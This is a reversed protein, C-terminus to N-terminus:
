LTLDSCNVWIVIHVTHEWETWTRNMLIVNQTKNQWSAAKLPVSSKSIGLHRCTFSFSEISKCTTTNPTKNNLPNLNKLKENIYINKEETALTFAFHVCVPQNAMLVVTHLIVTQNTVPIRVHGPLLLCRGAAVDRHGSHTSGTWTMVVNRRTKEARLM